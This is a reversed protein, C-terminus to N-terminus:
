LQNSDGPSGGEAASPQWGAESSWREPYDSAPDVITLSFGGGDTTPYWNDDYEFDQIPRGFVDEMRIREGGNDLRGAYEGAIALGLGYEAEFVSRDVVVLVYDGAALTMDPFTFDIGNTFSVMDLDLPDSGINQLEIFEADPEEPHYMIETVRLNDAVNGVAFTAKNLASWEYGDLIRAKVHVTEALPLGSGEEDYEDASDVIGASDGGAVEGVTLEASILFDSSGGASANMGHIALLNNGEM